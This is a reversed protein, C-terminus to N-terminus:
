SGEKTIQERVVAPNSHMAPLQKVVKALRMKLRLLILSNTFVGILIGAGLTLLLLIAIPGDWVMGFYYHVQIGHPNQVIFTFVFLILVISTSVYFVVKM